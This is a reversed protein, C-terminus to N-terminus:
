KPVLPKQLYRSHAAPEALSGREDDKARYPDAVDGDVPLLPVVRSACGESIRSDAPCAPSPLM